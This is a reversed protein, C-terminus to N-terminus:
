APRQEVGGAGAVVPELPAATFSAVRRAASVDRYDTRRQRPIRGLGAILREMDHPPVEEGHQAGAARTISENMLVGGLDNAGSQLCMAAGALGMKVWSTQINAIQTHLVLRAVAHMLVAERFTPGPRAQGKLALPAEAAVFPLPVFESFGGTRQQLRRIHLLHRAWHIPRDVHGYMITATTRLGLRHADEIVALWQATNIKDPCLVARVEDDLIEAATGPLSGLGADVLRKLFRAVPQGLSAAGSHIELPSFAHIHMQPVAAKIATCIDLYTQGTFDPHIGGQLCVETAGRAWAEAARRTIEDLALVYPRGRLDESMKGKSFACFRCHYTCINTYNINRNVVYTVAGGVTAARLADAASTVDDFASGRASFLSAIEEESLEQGSAARALTRGLAAHVLVPAASATRSPLESSLGAAWRDERAFGAGDSLRLLPTRLAPDTWRAADLAYDPYIALREALIKGGAATAARLQAIEPWPAEPNVHDITVPSIGGWDDLGAGILAALGDPSLNPPAQIHMSPGLIIRAMAITWVLDEPAPEPADAMRTGPKARFNQIIVEQVHGYREHIEGIALLADLREARTEGIGILLGTTFPVRLTGALRLTELRAAPQKDPSGYHAGGKAALRPSLTELMMGQSVCVERLAALGTADLVGPNAHPLLGTERLVAGAAAALYDITSRYGLARLAADAEPYRLEPKDGLTFLAEKCGQRAGARAIELVEDLSLYAPVGPRAPTAFTCYHCVDRCLRTLPIFVKRSYTMVQGHGDDRLAGAMRVLAALPISEAIDRAEGATPRRTQTM